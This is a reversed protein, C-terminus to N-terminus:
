HGHGLHRKIQKLTEAFDIEEDSDESIVDETSDLNITTLDQELLKRMRLEKQDLRSDVVEDISDEGLFYYYTVLDTDSLGIRHIRDKSQLFHSGNFTRDLYIADLCIKQLSISEACAAPNAILIRASKSTKFAHIIRERNIEADEKDSLAIGGYLPLPSVDKLLRLLMKINHVFSTWLIIKRDEKLLKYILSVVSQIKAPVEYDSYRLILDSIPLGTAKLPPLKFEESYHALLAPNSAAQLMRVLRARRWMKLKAAEIRTATTDHLLKSALADYIASQIPGFRVRIKKVKPIPLRLDKKKIRWFLPFIKERVGEVPDVQKNIAYIYESKSGLLSEDPYLFTFQSWLDSISNPTPTGSLIVRKKALPAISRLTTAWKGESISKIYHSEDAILMVDRAELLNQLFEIDNSATHYNLIVVDATDAEAWSHIREDKNGSIRLFRTGKPLCSKVEGEWPAFSSRPGIVVLLDIIKQLKLQAFAALAITTKGSGPVSFNASHATSLMHATAPIQFPKLQRRFHSLTITKAPKRKLAMGVKLSSSLEEKDGQISNWFRNAEADLTLSFSNEKLYSFLDALGQRGLGKRKFNFLGTGKEEGPLINCFFISDESSAVESGKLELTLEDKDLKISANKM